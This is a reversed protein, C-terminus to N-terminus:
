HAMSVTRIAADCAKQAASGGSCTLTLMSQGRQVAVMRMRVSEGERVSALKLWRAELFGVAMVGRALSELNGLRAQQEEIIRDITADLNPAPPDSVTIAGVLSAGTESHQAVFDVGRQGSDVQWTSPLVVQLGFQSFSLTHTLEIPAPSPMRGFANVALVLGALALLSGGIKLLSGFRYRGDNRLQDYADQVPTAFLSKRAFGTRWVPRAFARIFIDGVKRLNGSRGPWRCLGNAGLPFIPLPHFFVVRSFGGLRRDRV